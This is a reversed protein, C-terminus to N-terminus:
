VTNCSFQVEFFVKNEVAKKLTRDWTEELEWLEEVIEQLKVNKKGEPSIVELFENFSSLNSQKLFEVYINIASGLYKGPKTVFDEQEINQQVNRLVNQLKNFLISITNEM